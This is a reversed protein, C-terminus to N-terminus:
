FEFDLANLVTNNEALVVTIEDGLDGYEVLYRRGGLATIELDDYSLDGDQFIISDGVGLGVVTDSGDGQSFLFQDRANGEGAFMLDDGEGGDIVDGGAGGGLIDDGAGGDLLDNGNDGRLTDDGALGYLDDAGGLGILLDGGITGELAESANTGTITEGFALDYFATTGSVEYSVAIQPLGTESDEAPIFSIVEPSVNGYESGDIYTLYSSNAPDSIDYIMIGSDRELGIFALTMGDVEGVAIAEPEPGKNDSRNEDIVDPADSPYDDNNFANAPRISAIIQEFDDGSDFVLNGEADYITFSRSGYSYLQDIDGDGDTDGDFISVNLRSLAELEEATYADPDISVGDIEGDVIDGVRAADGGEDWDGRDDGENATLVYTEGNIEATAIADPMRMGLVPHTDIAIADDRDSPDLGAGDVSHDKFGLSVVSDWSMSALDFIAMANAEQLTVYLKGNDGEAIYEPEFDTSPMLDPFIRVGAAILDEVQADFESFDFTQATWTAVDIVSISGAPDAADMPEGENAVFIYAGDKSFTVMDPLNGVTITRAPAVDGPTARPYIAVVGDMPLDSDEPNETSIAVAIGTESVSVSQVGDYNEILTLDISKILVGTTTSFVDIRDEEGNTVYARNGYVSVVESGGEGTGADLNLAEAFGLTSTM